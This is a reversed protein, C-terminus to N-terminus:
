WEFGIISHAMTVIVTCMIKMMISKGITLHTNIKKELLNQITEMLGFYLSILKKEM